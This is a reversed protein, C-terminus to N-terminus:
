GTVMQGGNVHLTEGTVFRSDDSALYVYAGALEFPQAARKAATQMGFSAVQEASFSSVILPTWVPGPAVSNVRIGKQVLNLSLSRSFSIIAGKTASYDILERQGKYATVSATNIISTGQKMHPVAAKTMFFYSYINTKFTKDFQEPTIDLFDAQPYQVALNNVLIDISGFTEIAATATKENAKPESLDGPILLCRSGLAEIRQKTEEADRHENLYPIVLNAGEKAFVYAVARGIGSDGGSIIATRGLLKGSGRYDPNESIPKPNMLYEMGPQENQHQPPFTLPQDKCETKFSYYPYVPYM